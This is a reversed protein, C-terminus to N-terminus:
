GWAELIAWLQDPSDKHRKANRLAMDADFASLWAVCGGEDDVYMGISGDKVTAWIDERDGMYANIEDAVVEASLEVREDEQAPTPNHM